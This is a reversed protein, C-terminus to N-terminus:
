FSQIQIHPNPNNLIGRNKILSLLLSQHGLIFPVYGCYVPIHATQLVWRNNGTLGVFMEEKDEAVAYEIQLGLSDGFRLGEPGVALLGIFFGL